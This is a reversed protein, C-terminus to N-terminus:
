KDKDKFLSEMVQGPRKMDSGGAVLTLINSTRYLFHPTREGPFMFACLLAPDSSETKLTFACLKQVQRDAAEDDRFRLRLVSVPDGKMNFDVFVGECSKFDIVQEPFYATTELALPGRILRISFPDVGREPMIGLISPASSAGQLAATVRALRVMDGELGQDGEPNTLMTFYRGVRMLIQFKSFTNEADIRATAQGRGRKIFFVGLAAFDDKMEYVALNLEKKNKLYHQVFLKEFGFELFLEAGGNIKGYLEEASYTRLVGAKKWGPFASEGPPSFDAAPDKASLQAAQLILFVVASPILSKICSGRKKMM